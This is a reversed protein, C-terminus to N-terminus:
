VDIEITIVLRLIVDITGRRQVLVEWQAMWEEIPIIGELLPDPSLLEFPKTNFQGVSQPNHQPYASHHM